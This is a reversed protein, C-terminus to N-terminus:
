RHSMRRCVECEGAIYDLLLIDAIARQTKETITKMSEQTEMVVQVEDLQSVSWYAKKLKATAEELNTPAGILVSGRYMVTNNETNAAIEEAPHVSKQPSDASALAWSYFLPGVTNLYLCLKGINGRDVIPYGNAKLRTFIRRQLAERAAMNRLYAEQWDNILKWVKDGKLHQQLIETVPDDPEPPTKLTSKESFVSGGGQYWSLVTLDVEPISITAQYRHLRELLRGQHKLLVDKMMEVRAASYDRGLRASELADKITRIDKKHKKQLSHESLGSEFEQLWQRKEVMSIKRSM